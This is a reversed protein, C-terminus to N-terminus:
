TPATYRWLMRFGASYYLGQFDSGYGNASDVYVRLTSLATCKEIVAPIQSTVARAWQDSQGLAENV